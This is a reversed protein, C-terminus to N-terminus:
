VMIASDTIGESVSRDALANEYVAFHQDMCRRVGFIEYAQTRATDTAKRRMADDERVTLLRAALTAPENPKCLFGNHRDAILEAVSHVASGVITTGAGMAWALPTTAVDELAPVVLMDAVALLSEFSNANEPTVLLHLLSFGHAFRRLRAVEASRGPVILRVMPDIQHLLATAWVANYQGERKEPPGPTLLVWQDDSLGFDRRRFRRKTENIESFDVGPRIVVCSDPLVGNEILRRRATEAPCIIRLTESQLAALWRKQNLGFGPFDLSTVVPIDDTLTLVTATARIGWAHVLDIGHSGIMKRVQLSSIGNWGLIPSIRAPTETAVGVEPMVLPGMSAVYHNARDPGLRALLHGLTKKAGWNVNQDLVHLIRIM